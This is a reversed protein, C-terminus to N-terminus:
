LMNLVCEEQKGLDLNKAILNIIPVTRFHQLYLRWEKILATRLDDNSYFKQKNSIIIM